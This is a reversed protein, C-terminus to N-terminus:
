TVPMGRMRGQKDASNVRMGEAKEAVSRAGAGWGTAVPPWRPAAAHRGGVIRRRRRLVVARRAVASNGYGHGCWRGALM